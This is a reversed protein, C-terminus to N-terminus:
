PNAAILAAIDELDRPRGSARKMSILDDLAAIALTVGEYDVELARERLEDYPPSGPVENLIHLTGHDTLLPPVVAAVALQEATPPSAGPVGDPSASIAQLASALREVNTADPSPIVDLDRTTRRHGHVQTAVGGIITYEVGHQDLVAILRGIDLPRNM